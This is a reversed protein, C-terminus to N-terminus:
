EKLAKLNYRGCSIDDDNKSTSKSKTKPPNMPLCKVNLLWISNYYCGLSNCGHENSCNKMSKCSTQISHQIQLLHVVIYCTYVQMCIAFHM